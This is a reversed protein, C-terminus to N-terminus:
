IIYDFKGISSLHFPVIHSYQVISFQTLITQLQHCLQFYFLFYFISICINNILFYVCSFRYSPYSPSIKGRQFSIIFILIIVVITSSVKVELYLVQHLVFAVFSNSSTISSSTTLLEFYLIPHCIFIVRSDCSRTLLFQRQVLPNVSPSGVRLRLFFVQELHYSLMCISPYYTRLHRLFVM